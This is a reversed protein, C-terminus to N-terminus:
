KCTYIVPQRTEDIPLQGIFRRPANGPTHPESSTEFYCIKKDDHDMIGKTHVLRDREKKPLYVAATLHGSRGSIENYPYLLLYGELGACMMMSVALFAKDECDGLGLMLTEIPMQPYDKKETRYVIQNVFDQILQARQYEPVSQIKQNPYAQSFIYNTIMKLTTDDPTVFNKYGGVEFLSSTDTRSESFVSADFPMRQLFSFTPIKIESNFLPGEVPVSLEPMVFYRVLKRSQNDSPTFRTAYNGSQIKDTICFSPTLGKTDYGLGSFKKEGLGEIKVNLSDTNLTVKPNIDLIFYFKGDYTIVSNPKVNKYGAAVEASDLIIGVRTDEGFGFIASDIKCANLLGAALVAIDFDTGYNELLIEAPLRLEGKGNIKPVQSVFDAVLKITDITSVANAKLDYSYGDKAEIKKAILALSPNPTWLEAITRPQKLSALYDKLDPLFCSAVLKSETYSYLEPKFLLFELNTM